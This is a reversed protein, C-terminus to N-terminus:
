STGARRPAEQEMCALFRGGPHFSNPLQRIKSESLRQVDGTGDARQWYVNTATKESRSSSFAIRRGDPTWVPNSDEAPDFTLRSMTDRAWEYVWVDAQGSDGLQMALKQGDPSFRLNYWTSPRARLLSTKGERDTWHIPAALGVSKGPVYVLTGDNSLAFKSGVNNPTSAIGEVVPAPAGTLELRVPDFPAAFLTSEHVYVVHGSPVYRGHYGGRQLIKRPGKPLPQIVINAEEFGSSTTSHGTYLVAKGGPLIQPWRQTAEGEELTTLPEAKGGSAQVRLLNMGAGTNPQFVITGDEAWFAGRANPAECLVVSAGGTVSVKKLKGDAFFGIWQGDPSFMPERAGDTGALPAAQLQDLRRVWIQATGGTKGGVFALTRGDPSLVANPGLDTVLSVDAGIEASLRVRAGAPPGEEM